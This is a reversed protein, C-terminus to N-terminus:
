RFIYYWDTLLSFPKSLSRHPFILWDENSGNGKNIAHTKQRINYDDLSKQAADDGYYKPSEQSVFPIIRSVKEQWQLLSNFSTTLIFLPVEQQELQGVTFEDQRPWGRGFSKPCRCWTSLSRILLNLSPEADLSPSTKTWYSLWSRSGKIIQHASLHSVTWCGEQNREKPLRPLSTTSLVGSWAFMTSRMMRIGMKTMTTTM